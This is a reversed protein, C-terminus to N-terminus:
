VVEMINENKCTGHRQRVKITMGDVVVITMENDHM